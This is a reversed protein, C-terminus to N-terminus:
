RSGSEPRWFQREPPFNKCARMLDNKIYFAQGAERCIAMASQTFEKWDVAAERAKDHNIKGIKIIDVKGAIERLVALAEAPDIVPEMSVWTRLGLHRAFRM